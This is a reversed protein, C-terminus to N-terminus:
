LAARLPWLRELVLLVDRARQVGLRRLAWLNARYNIRHSALTLDHGYRPLYAVERGGPATIVVMAEGFPTSVRREEVRPFRAESLYSSIVALDM